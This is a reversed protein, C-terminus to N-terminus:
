KQRASDWPSKAPAATPNRRQLWFLYIERMNPAIADSLVDIEAESALGHGLWDTVSSFARLPALLKEMTTGGAAWQEALLAVGRLYGECWEDVIVFIEGAEEEQLFLPDFEAPAEQLTAAVTNMHRMMLGVITEFSDESEWEPEYDGWVVAMWQSPPALVPGSVIATFLGDLESMSLVGPNGEDLDVDEDVREVLFRDLEALEATDLPQLLTNM